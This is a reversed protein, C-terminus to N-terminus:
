VLIMNNVMQRVANTIAEADYHCEAYLEQQEGHEIFRDPIGLRKLDAKYGYDLMFEAVASGFGGMLCGDEVTIVKKFQKFVLHLLEEDLPFWPMDDCAFFELQSARGGSRLLADIGFASINNRSISLHTLGQNWDTFRHLQGETRLLAEITAEPTDKIIATNGSSRIRRQPENDISRSWPPPDILYRQPHSFTASWESEEIVHDCKGYITPLPASKLAGEEATRLEDSPTLHAM